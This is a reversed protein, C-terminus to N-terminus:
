EEGTFDSSVITPCVYKEIYEVMLDTGSLHDVYPPDKPNYMTDTMDRVLIVNMGLMKMARLGYPRGIVCMNTAIGAVFVNKVGKNKLYPGIEAPSDSIIDGDKIAIAENERKWVIGTFSCAPNECGGNTDASIPFVAGKESPLPGPWNFEELGAQKCVELDRYKQAEKRGPHDQYYEMCEAPGHIISVGKARAAEVVRDLAIALEGFRANSIDCWHKDWMDIIIFATEEPAYDAEETVIEWPSGGASNVSKRYKLHFIM